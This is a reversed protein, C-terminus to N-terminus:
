NAIRSVIKLSSGYFSPIEKMNNPHPWQEGGLSHFKYYINDPQNTVGGGGWVSTNRGLM